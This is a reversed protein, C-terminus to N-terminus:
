TWQCIKLEPLMHINKLLVSYKHFILIQHLEFPFLKSFLRQHLSASSFLTIKLSFFARSGLRSINFLSYTFFFWFVMENSDTWLMWLQTSSTPSSVGVDWFLSDNEIVVFIDVSELYPVVWVKTMVSTSSDRLPDLVLPNM